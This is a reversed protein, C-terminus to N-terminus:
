RRPLSALLTQLTARVAGPSFHRRTNELGGASLTEWLTRDEHLRVVAAAFAEPDDAVLVDVGDVLHMGEVACLTAVMPQGHALSHNVKGKVGAGYRLPAVGVRVGELLPTLDPVFGHLCVGPLEGLALVEPPAESGVLNLTIDPLQERVRPLIDRAMWVAADVNPPHRYGGVFLLDRRESWPKGPGQVEHINSVVDVKAGPLEQALLAQEAGSVVWTTDCQSMLGLEIRRTRAAKRLQAADGSVEAERLERLHHLDVTDFVVHARPAHTRLLPLVPSLVYHRSGVVLDFRPGQRALWAPVSALFPHWWAEVGIQQLAQTYAGDHARNEAFFVVSCGEDRMARMLALMRVSGSDRDPTPTCADMVLVRHRRGRESALEPDSGAPRHSDALVARWREHFKKQNIVQYAKVGTHIETGSSIGEHHVVVSAPQYRVKLGLTRIRMALDTDEYYAPTYHDDFGGLELFLERRLALSAGSCYDVERVFNFRPDAPDEFRGYNWGSGDAFVIGGAEQLRGDPYVLKSGALGTDPHRVFTDLLADLWGPQVTTDNNLFVLFEGKALGAGANCAGIFGLNEPNRHYRLGPIQPLLRPTDDTSADDVVIVEFATTDGCDGLARLCALTYHLQNYAPVIISARPSAPQQLRLPREVAGAESAPPANASHRTTGRMERYRRWTGALGRIRLSARARTALQRLHRLRYVNAQGLNHLRTSIRRLRETARWALSGRLEALLAWAEDRQRLAVDRQRALDPCDRQYYGHAQALQQDLELVLAELRAHADQAQALESEFGRRAQALEDDLRARADALQRELGDRVHALEDQSEQRLRAQADAMRALEHTRETDRRMADDLERQLEHAWHARRDLETRADALDDERQGARMAMRAAEAQAGLGALLAPAAPSIRFPAAADPLVERWGAAMAGLTSQVPAAMAAIAAIEDRHAALHALRDNVAAPDAAVVWGGGGALLREAPAGPSACLVPLRLALMESLTYSFTEPVTSPLLALDPSLEAIWAPLDDRAYERIVRVSPRGEFRVGCNGTGLLLLEVGAPLSDLMPALLQEGKGGELRGPVLVRLPQGPDRPAAAAPLPALPALGHPVVRRPRQALEPAIACLRRLAFESPAVLTANATSLAAVFAERLAFWQDADIGALVYGPGADALGRALADRDYPQTAPDRADHLLPWLPYNDHVCVATPLGTGLVDLAHGILSSVLVSGVGWEAIITALIAEVEPSRLATTDVPNALTWTRVPPSDPGLHLQLRRGYPRHHEHGRAVLLLHQRGGDAVALDRAFREVGGGWGHLVHLLAPAGAAPAPLWAAPAAAVREKLSALPLPLEADRPALEPGVYLCPLLGCRLARTADNGAVADGRWISCLESWSAHAFSAHEALAWALASRRATGAADPFVPWRGDLPSLVDWGDQQWAADLIRWFGDPLEAGSRMLLVDRGPHQGAARALAQQPSSAVGPIRVMAVPVGAVPGGSASADATWLSLVPLPHADM